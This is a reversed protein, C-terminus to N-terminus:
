LKDHSVEIVKELRQRLNEKARSLRSKVTGISCGLVNAIEEYSLDQLYKLIIVARHKKPLAAIEGRIISHEESLTLTEIAARDESARGAIQQLTEPDDLSGTFVLARRRKKSHNKKCLNIAIRYLWTSISSKHRFKGIHRYACIFTEQTLDLADEYDGTYSYITNFIKSENEAVISEFDPIDSMAKPANAKQGLTETDIM